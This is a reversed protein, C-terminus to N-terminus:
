GHRSTNSTLKGELLNLLSGHSQYKYIFLKEENTSHYAVLPLMNPHKLSGIQRMTQSFEEFSVQLQKLRKVAYLASNKLIVKYLSSCLTQSKLDATAELLEELEFREHEEVLFVLESHREVPKVEERAKAPPTKLPSDQLNKLIEREKASNKAKQGVIYIFLLFLGVGLVLPILIDWGAYSHENGANSENSEQDAYSESSQPSESLTHISHVEEVWDVTSIRQVASSKSYYTYLPKLEHMFHPMISTFHNNSIDLRRLYKLKTLALPLRGSLHNNSLNLYTLRTCHLISNPINGRIQNKALSLVRLNSLKCLSDVDVIDSLNLNELRIEVITTCHSNCKVGMLKHLCPHPVLGNWGIGLVNQPDVAKILNFLSESESSQGGMCVMIFLPLVAICVLKTLFLIFDRKNQM